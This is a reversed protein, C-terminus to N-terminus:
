RGNLSQLWAAIDRAEADRMPVAPMATGPVWAPANRVFDALAEPRNPLQGAILTRTAFGNLDPGVRGRPWSVGPMAHCAGCGLREAAAKGRAITAEDAQHPRIDTAHCAVLLMGMSGIMGGTRHM